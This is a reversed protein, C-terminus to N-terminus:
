YVKDEEDYKSRYASMCISRAQSRERTNLECERLESEQVIQENDKIIYGEKNYVNVDHYLTDDITISENGSISYKFRESEYTIFPNRSKIITYNKTKIDILYEKKNKEVIKKIDSLKNYLELPSHLEGPNKLDFKNKLKVEVKNNYAQYRVYLIENKYKKNIQKLTKDEYNSIMREAKSNEIQEKIEMISKPILVISIVGLLVLLLIRKKTFM